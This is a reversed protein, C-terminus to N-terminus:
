PKGVTGIRLIKIEDGYSFGNKDGPYAEVFPLVEGDKEEWEGVVFSVDQWKAPSQIIENRLVWLGAVVGDLSPSSIVVVPTNNVLVAQVVFMSRVVDGKRRGEKIAYYYKFNPGTIISYNVMVPLLYQSELEEIMPNLTSNGLAIVPVKTTKTAGTISFLSLAWNELSKPTDGSVVTAHSLNLSALSIEQYPYPSHCLGSVCYDPEPLHEVGCPYPEIRNGYAWGLFSVALSNEPPTLTDDLYVFGPGVRPLLELDRETWYYPYNYVVPPRGVNLVSIVIGIVLVAVVTARHLKTGKLLVEVERAVFPVSFVVFYQYVRIMWNRFGFSGFGSPMVMSILLAFIMLLGMFVLVKTSSDQRKERLANIFGVVTLAGFLFNGTQMIVIFMRDRYVKEYVEAGLHFQVLMLAAMGLIGLFAYLGARHTLESRIREFFSRLSPVREWMKAVLPGSILLLFWGIVLSFYFNWGASCFLPNSSHKLIWKISFVTTRYQPLLLSLVGLASPGLAMFYRSLSRGETLKVVGIFWALALFIGLSLIHSLGLLAWLASVVLVSKPALSDGDFVRLIVLILVLGVLVGTQQPRVENSSWLYHSSLLLALYFPLANSSYGSFSRHFWLLFFPYILFLVLSVSLLSVVPNSVISNISRLLYPTILGSYVGGIKITSIYYAEDFTTTIRGSGFRIVLWVALFLGIFALKNKLFGLSSM